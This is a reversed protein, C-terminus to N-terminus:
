LLIISVFRLSLRFFLRVQARTKNHADAARTFEHFLRPPLAVAAAIRQKADLVAAQLGRGSVNFNVTVRRQGGDHEISYRDATPTLRALHSLPVEGLPGSIMLKSLQEPRHRLKDPVLLVTDVPRTGNFAQGLTEGAFASQIPGLVDQTRLGM